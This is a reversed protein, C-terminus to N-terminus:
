SYKERGSVGNDPTSKGALFELTEWFHVGASGASIAIISIVILVTGLLLTTLVIKKGIPM